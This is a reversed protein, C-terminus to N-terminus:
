QLIYCAILYIFWFSAHFTTGMFPQLIPDQLVDRNTGRRLLVGLITLFQITSRDVARLQVTHVLSPEKTMNNCSGAQRVEILSGM